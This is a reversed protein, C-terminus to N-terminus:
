ELPLRVRRAAEVEGPRLEDVRRRATLALEDLLQARVGVAHDDAAVAAPPAVERNGVDAPLQAAEAVLRLELELPRVADVPDPDRDQSDPRARLVPRASRARSRVAGLSAGGARQTVHPYAVSCTRNSSRTSAAAM